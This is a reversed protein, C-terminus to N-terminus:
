LEDPSLVYLTDVKISRTEVLADLDGERNTTFGDKVAAIKGAVRLECESALALKRFLAVDDKNMRDLMVSGSFDVRIKDIGEGDVKPLALEENDYKSRDFLPATESAQAGPENPPEPKVVANSADPEETAPVPAPEVVSPPEDELVREPETTEEQVRKREVEVMFAFASSVEEVHIEGIVGGRTAAEVATKDAADRADDYGITQPDGDPRDVVIVFPPAGDEFENVEEVVIEQWARREETPTVEAQPEAEIQEEAAKPWPCPHDPAEAVPGRWNCGAVTCEALQGTETEATASM